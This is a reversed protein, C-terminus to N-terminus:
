NFLIGRLDQIRLTTFSTLQRVTWEIFVMQINKYYKYNCLGQLYKHQFCTIIITRVSLAPITIFINLFIKPNMSFIRRSNALGILSIEYTM